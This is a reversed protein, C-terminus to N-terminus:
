GAYKSLSVLSSIFVYRYSIYKRYGAMRLWMLTNLKREAYKIYNRFGVMRVWLQSCLKREKDVTEFDHWSSNLLFPGSFGQAIVGKFDLGASPDPDLDSSVVIKSYAIDASPYPSLNSSVVIKRSTPNNIEPELDCQIPTFLKSTESFVPVIAQVPDINPDPDSLVVIKRSALDASPDPSLNSSVVNKKSTPKNIEPELDCQLPTFFKSKKSFIPAITQLPDLDPHPISSM